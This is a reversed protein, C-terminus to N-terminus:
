RLYIKYKNFYFILVGFVNGGAGEAGEADPWVVVVGEPYRKGSFLVSWCAALNDM